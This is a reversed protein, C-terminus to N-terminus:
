SGRNRWEKMINRKIKRKIIELINKINENVNVMRINIGQFEDIVNNNLEFFRENINLLLREHDGEDNNRWKYIIEKLYEQFDQYNSIVGDRLEMMENLNVNANEFM